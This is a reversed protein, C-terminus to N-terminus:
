LVDVGAAIRAEDSEMSRSILLFLSPLGVSDEFETM